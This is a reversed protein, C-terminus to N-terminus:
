HWTKLISSQLNRSRPEEEKGEPTQKQGLVLEVYHLEFDQPTESELKISLDIYGKEQVEMQRHLRLRTPTGLAIKIGM